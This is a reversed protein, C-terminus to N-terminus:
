IVDGISVRWIMHDADKEWYDRLHYTPGGFKKLWIEQATKYGSDLCFEEIGRMQLVKYIEKLLINGLGQKQYDPHVFVTGIEVLEKLEGNTCSIILENSPGYEISGVVKDGAKAILFFRVEGNSEFDEDLVRRKDRIENDLTECLHSINNKEFTDRLVIQFFDNIKDGEELRPRFIQIKQM